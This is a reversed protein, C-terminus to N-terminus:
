GISTLMTDHHSSPVDMGNCTLILSHPQSRETTVTLSSISRLSLGTHLRNVPSYRTLFSGSGSHTSHQWQSFKIGQMQSLTLTTSHSSFVTLISSNELGNPCVYRREIGCCILFALESPTPQLLTDRALRQIAIATCIRSRTTHMM